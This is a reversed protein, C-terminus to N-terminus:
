DQPFESTHRKEANIEWVVILINTVRPATLGSCRWWRANSFHTAVSHQREDLQVYLHHQHTTPQSVRVVIYFAYMGVRVIKCGGVVQGEDRKRDGLFFLTRQGGRELRLAKLCQGRKPRWSFIIDATRQAGVARSQSVTWWLLFSVSLLM